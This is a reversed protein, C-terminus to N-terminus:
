DRLQRTLAHMYEWPWEDMYIPFPSFICQLYERSNLAVVTGGEGSKFSNVEELVDEPNAFLTDAVPVM